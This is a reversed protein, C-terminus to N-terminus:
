PRDSKDLNIGVGIKGEFNIPDYMITFIAWKVYVSAGVEFSLLIVTQEYYPSLYIVPSDSDRLDYKLISFNLSYDDGMRYSMGLGYKTYEDEGREFSLVPGLKSNLPMVSIGPCNKKPAYTGIISQAGMNCTFAFLMLIPLKKM